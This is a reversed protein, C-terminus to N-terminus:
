FTELSCPAENFSVGERVDVEVNTDREAFGGHTRDSDTYSLFVCMEQDGIGWYVTESQNNEFTCTFRLGTAGAMPESPILTQGWPEGVVPNSEFLAEGDLDGGVREIRVGLGLHHYHPLVFHVNFDMPEGFDCEMTQASEQNPPLEIARNFFAMPRLHTEVRSEPIADIEIRMASEIPQDSLNLLHINGVVKSRPPIRYAMGSDFQQDDFTSQTSQAFLVGGAVGAAVENFGRDDCPWTGDPGGYFSDPVFFWNSHHWHGDNSARVANVFLPEDNDLTWSQCWWSLEGGAEVAVAELEQSLTRTDGGDGCGLLALGCALATIVRQM